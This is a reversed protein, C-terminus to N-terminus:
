NYGQIQSESGGRGWQAKRRTVTGPSTGATFVTRTRHETLHFMFRFWGDTETISPNSHHDNRSSSNPLRLSGDRSISPYANKAATISLSTGSTTTM